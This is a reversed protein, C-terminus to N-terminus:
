RRAFYRLDLSFYLTQLLKALFTRIAADPFPDLSPNLCLCLFQLEVAARFPRVLSSILSPRGPVACEYISLAAADKVAYAQV